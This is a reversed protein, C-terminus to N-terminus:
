RKVYVLTISALGSYVATGVVQYTFANGPSTVTMTDGSIEATTSIGVGPFHFVHLAVYSDYTGATAGYLERTQGADTSRVLRQQQFTGDAILLDESTLDLRPGADQLTVPLPAGNMSVLSWTGAISPLPPRTTDAGCALVSAAMAIVAFRAAPAIKQM